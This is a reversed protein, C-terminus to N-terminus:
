FFGRNFVLVVNKKGKYDSLRITRGESDIATFDIATEAEKAEATMKM